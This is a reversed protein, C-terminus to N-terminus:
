LTVTLTITPNTCCGCGTGGLGSNSPTPLTFVLSLPSCTCGANVRHWGTTDNCPSGLFSISAEYKDCLSSTGRDPLSNNCRILVQFPLTVGECLASPIVTARWGTCVANNVQTADPTLTIVRSDLYSGCGGDTGFTGTVNQGQAERCCCETTGDCCCKKLTGGYRILKGGQTYIPM